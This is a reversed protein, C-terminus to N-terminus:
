CWYLVMDMGFVCPPDSLFFCKKRDWVTKCLGSIVLGMETESKYM